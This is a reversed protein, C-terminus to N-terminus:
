LLKPKSLIQSFFMCNFLVQLGIMFLCKKFYINPIKSKWLKLVTPKGSRRIGTIVKILPKDIFPKLQEIYNRREIMNKHNYGYFSLIKTNKLTVVM